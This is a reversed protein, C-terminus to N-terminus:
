ALIQKVVAENGSQVAVDMVTQGANNVKEITSTDKDLILSVLKKASMQNSNSAAYMLATNGTNDAYTTDADNDLLLEGIGYKPEDGRAAFSMLPTRGAHNPKNIDAGADILEEVLSNNLDALYGAQCVVNIATDGENTIAADLELGKDILTRLMKIIDKLDQSMGRGFNGIAKTLLHYAATEGTGTRYNVDVGGDALLKVMPLSPYECALMLPTRRYHDSLENLDAGNKIITEVAVTDRNLIAEHLTMGGTATDGEDGTLLAAIEKVGSRQAYTLPTTDFIDKDEVDIGSKEVLVRVTKTAAEVAGPIDKRHVLKDCITHLLNKGEEATADMKVGADGFADLMPYMYVLGAEFYALKGSDNKKKPNVGIELLAKATENIKAAKTELNADRLDFKTTALAHFPTNGYKDTDARLGKEKLFKIAEPDTFRSALHYLNEEYDGKIDLDPLAKYLELVDAREAEGAFMNRHYTDRIKNYETSM